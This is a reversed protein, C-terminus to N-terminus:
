NKKESLESYTCNLIHQGKKGEIKVYVVGFNKFDSGTLDLFISNNTTKKMWTSSKTEYSCNKFNFFNNKM